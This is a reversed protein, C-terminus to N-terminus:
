RRRVMALGGLALLLLTAPEPLATFTEACSGSNFILIGGTTNILPDHGDNWQMLYGTGTIPGIPGLMDWTNFAANTSSDFLDGGVPSRGLNLTGNSNNVCTSTGSTLGFQGLGVIQISASNHTIGWGVGLSRRNATDGTATITFNSAAFPTGNLTGSGRGTYTFTLMTASVPSPMSPLLGTLVCVLLWTRSANM